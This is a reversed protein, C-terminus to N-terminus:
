TLETASTAEALIWTRFEALAPNIISKKRCALFYGYDDLAVEAIRELTGAELENSVLADNLALGQGDAVAELRVVVQEPTPPATGPM